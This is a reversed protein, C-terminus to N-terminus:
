KICVQYLDSKMDIPQSTVGYGRNYVVGAECDIHRGLVETGHENIMSYETVFRTNSDQEANAKGSENSMFCGVLLLAVGFMATSLIKTLNM